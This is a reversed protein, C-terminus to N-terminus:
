FHFRKTTRTPLIEQFSENINNYKFLFFFFENWTEAMVVVIRECKWLTKPSMFVYYILGNFFTVAWLGAFLM